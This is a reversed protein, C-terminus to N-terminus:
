MAYIGSASPICESSNSRATTALTMVREVVVARRGIYSYFAIFLHISLLFKKEKSLFFECIILERFAVLLKM